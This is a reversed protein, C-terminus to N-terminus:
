GYLRERVPRLALALSPVAAIAALLALTPYGAWAVVLGSLAGGAAGALGMVLDSLGQASPRLDDGVSESLLTSGAVMTGSWGLGLLFLGVTLQASHHGATGAVACAALLVGIGGLIVRRRGYRDTLWGTVPAFAFMGAIHVSLVVGVIRLTHADDHGADLIHVPTMAMVAVMVLHGVAMAAVGLRAAPQAVVAAWAPRVGVKGAPSPPEGHMRRALQLPDPRLLALLVLAALGFLVASFLFPAALTPIGYGDLLRGAAPALNPGAVAGVTTAWVVLSLHRGRHAPPALDVATYRALNGATTGGGFLFLGVFLLLPAGIVAAVVVAAGGVAAVLYAAALGPRRGYQRMVWTVPVALLAAGVVAASTALGSVGVGALEVALLAGVSLGIAVGVGGLTQTTFLLGLTRRQVTAVRAPSPTASAVTPNEM